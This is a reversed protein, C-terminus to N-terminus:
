FSDSLMSDINLENSLTHNFDVNIHPDIFPIIDAYKLQQEFITNICEVNPRV